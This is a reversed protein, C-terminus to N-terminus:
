GADVLIEFDCRSLQLGGDRGFGFRKDQARGGIRCTAHVGSFFEFAQGVHQRFVGVHNHNGVLDVFVDVVDAGVGADGFELGDTVPHDNDIANGLRIGHCAPTDTPYSSGLPYGRSAVFQLTLVCGARTGDGLLCSFGGVGPGLLRYGIHPYGELAAFVEDDGQGSFNGAQVCGHRLTGEVNERFAV